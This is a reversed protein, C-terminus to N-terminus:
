APLNADGGLEDVNFVAIMEPRFGEIAVFAIEDGDLVLDGPADSLAQTHFDPGFSAGGHILAASYVGLRVDEIKLGAMGPVLSATVLNLLGDLYEALGDVEIGGVGIGMGTQGGTVEEEGTVGVERWGLVEGEGAV